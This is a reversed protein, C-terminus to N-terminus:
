NPLPIIGRFVSTPLYIILVAPASFSPRIYKSEETYGLEYWYVPFFM